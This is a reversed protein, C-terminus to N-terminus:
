LLIKRRASHLEAITKRLRFERGLISGPPAGAAQAPMEGIHNTHAV